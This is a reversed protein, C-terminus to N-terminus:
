RGPCSNLFARIESISVALYTQNKFADIGSIIGALNGRSDVVPGGSDGMNVPVSMDLVRASFTGEPRPFEAQHVQRVHGCSFGFLSTGDGCGIAFVPDGPAAEGRALAMPKGTGEVRLLALDKDPDCAVVVCAMGKTYSSPSSVVAGGEYRPSHAHIISEGKVVHNATLILNSGVFVGSGSGEGAEIWVSSPVSKEYASRLDVAMIIAASVAMAAIAIKM